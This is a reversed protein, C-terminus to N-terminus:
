VGQNIASKKPGFEIIGALHDWAKYAGQNADFKEKSGNALAYLAAARRDKVYDLMKRLGSENRLDFIESELEQRYSTSVRLAEQAMKAMDQPNSM